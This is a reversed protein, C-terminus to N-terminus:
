HKYKIIITTKSSSYNVNEVYLKYIRNENANQITLIKTYSKGNSEEILNGKKAEKLFANTMKATASHPLTLVKIVEEIEHTSSNRSVISTFKCNGSQSFYDVLNDIANEAKSSLSFAIITFTIFLARKM